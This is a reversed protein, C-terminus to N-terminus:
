VVESLVSCTFGLSAFSFYCCGSWFSRVCLFSILVSLWIAPGRFTDTSDSICFLIDGHIRHIDPSLHVTVFLKIM